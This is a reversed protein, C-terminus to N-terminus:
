VPRPPSNLITSHPTPAQRATAPDYDVLRASKLKLFRSEILHWSLLALVVTIPVAILLNLFASRLGPQLGVVQQVPWAYLYVGYSIDTKQTWRTFRWPKSLGVYLALYSGAVPFLISFVPPFLAAVSLLALCLLAFLLSFKLKDRFLWVLM